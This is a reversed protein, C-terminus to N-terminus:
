HKEQWRTQRARILDRCKKCNKYLGDREGGCNHCRGERKWRARKEQIRQLDRATYKGPRRNLKNRALLKNKCEKCYTTGPIVNGTKCHPCRGEKIRQHAWELKYANSKDTCERCEYGERDMPGRCTPCYM